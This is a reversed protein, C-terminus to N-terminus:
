RLVSAGTAGLALASKSPDDQAATRRYRVKCCAIERAAPDLLDPGAVRCDHGTDGAKEHDGLQLETAM